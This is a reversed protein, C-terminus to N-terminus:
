GGLKIDTTVSVLKFAQPSSDRIEWLPQTPMRIWGLCRLVLDKTKHTNSSDLTYNALDPVMEQHVGTGTDIEVSQTDILRLVLRVLRCSPVPANGDNASAVPPLPTVQHMFPLGIEIKKAGYTLTCTGNEVVQPMLVIGDGTLFVKQGNLRNLGSIETQATNFKYLSGCDTHLEEDFCELYYSTGRQIIFYAKGSLIAVSLFQGETIQETWSQLNESRVNTLVVLHGNTMVIYAQREYKDYAMDLPNQILHRALMSLDTAQYIGELDSFLFERIEQGNAGAFITAGDIALPPVFRDSRSGVQTQRKLQIASPTLPDGSVMWEASTTFVQLHRNAFLAVIHDSQDSLIKFEIAEADYGSGLEFNTIDGTQSLWLTSPLSKSGGFVLRSQYTCITQPWGKEACFAPEGWSRTAALATTADIDDGEMLKKKVVATAHQADTVSQIEVYGEALKFQVGEHRSEFVDASTTLTVTGLCGSSAMTVADKEFRSYPQRVCADEELFSFAILSWSNNQYVLKQPQVDPHVILVGDPIQCWNLQGIQAQTWPTTISTLLADNQYIKTCGDQIVLLFCTSSDAEFAILRGVQGVDAIYRLGPRRHVGGTAELFVNKLAMAGNAYATLDVRGLLDTSLEGASFNTKSSFINTM